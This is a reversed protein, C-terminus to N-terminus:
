AILLTRDPEPVTITFTTGRSKKPTGETRSQCTITGGIDTIIGYAISLGLGIGRGEKKTTFFPDYIRGLYDEPIGNGTDQFGIEIGKGQNRSATWIKLKGGSPMATKANNILNLIIQQWKQPNGPGTPLEDSLSSEWTIGQAKLGPGVVLMLREIVQNIDVLGRVDEKIRSFSLLNEVVQRCNQGQREIAQLDKYTQCGPDAKELLLGSFGLIISIPNNLEHAIGAALTELSALKEAQLDEAISSIEAMKNINEKSFVSQLYLFLFFIYLVYGAGFLILWLAGERPPKFFGLFFAAPVTALIILYIRWFLNQLAEVKFTFKM